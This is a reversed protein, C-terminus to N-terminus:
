IDIFHADNDLWFSLLQKTVDLINERDDHMCIIDASNEDHLYTTDKIKQILDDISKYPWKGKHRQTLMWDATSYTFMCDRAKAMETDTYFSHTVSEFPQSYGEQVLYDQVDIKKRVMDETPEKDKVNLGDLFIDKLVAKHEPYKDFNVVRAGCGRDMHPFRILKHRRKKEAMLYAADIMMETDEIEQRIEDFSLESSRLHNSLHNGIIFGREIARIIPKPNDSLLAGRVFLIAPISKSELFDVMEDTFPSPSDDITLYLNKM